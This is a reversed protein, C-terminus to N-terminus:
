EEAEKDQVMEEVYKKLFELEVCSTSYKSLTDNVADLANEIMEVINDYDDISIMRGGGLYQRIARIVITSKRVNDKKAREKVEELLEAPITVTLAVKSM